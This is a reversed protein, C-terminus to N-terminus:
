VGSHFQHTSYFEVPNICYFGNDEKVLFAGKMAKMEGGWTPEFVIPHTLEVVTKLPMKEAIPHVCFRAPKCVDDTVDCRDSELYLKRFMEQTVVYQNKNNYVDGPLWVYQTILVDGNHATNSTEQFMRGNEDVCSTVVVTDQTVIEAYFPNTKKCLLKESSDWIQQLDEQTKHEYDM